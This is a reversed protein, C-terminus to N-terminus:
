TRKKADQFHRHVLASIQPDTMKDATQLTTSPPLLNLQTLRKHLEHKAEGPGFILLADAGRVLESVSSYYKNLKESLQRDLQDDGKQYQASYPSKPHTAGHYRSHRAANSAIQQVNEGAESLIVIMARKHDIWLGVEKTM